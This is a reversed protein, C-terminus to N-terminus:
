LHNGFVSNPRSYAQTPGVSCLGVSFDVHIRWRKTFPEALCAGLHLQTLVSRGQPYPKLDCGVQFLRSVIDTM